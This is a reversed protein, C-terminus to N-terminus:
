EGLIIQEVEQKAKELIEIAEAQLQKAQERLQGIHEAIENQKEIPPIPIKIHKIDKGYVHSTQGTKERNILTKFIDLSLLSFLYMSNCITDDVRVCILEGVYATPIKPEENLYKIFRGVYEAQHAASLIFIDGKHAEINNASKTFDTKNLDIFEASYSGVKIIPYDTKEDSYESSAATTGSAINTVVTAIKDISYISKSISNELNSYHISYYDCDLRNGSVISINTKFVRNTLSNDKVPIIIGLESLLYEDISELIQKAQAEKQLRLNIATNIKKIIGEQVVIPPIPIKLKAFQDTNISQVTTSHKTILPLLKKGFVYFYIGFYEPLLREDKLVFAKLDQNITVPIKNITVPLSHILIGSRVVIIISNEPVLKTSSNDVGEQTIKDESDNLYLGKFDKPSVWPINGNWYEPKDKSPTGGSFPKSIKYLQEQEFVSDLRSNKLHFNFFPDLRCEIESLRTLFVKKKDLSSNVVFDSM